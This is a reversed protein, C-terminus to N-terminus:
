DDHDEFLWLQNPDWKSNLIESEYFNSITIGLLRVGKENFEVNDLLSFSTTTIRGLTDFNESISKSRTIQSFDNFKVKLTLTKGALKKKSIRGLVIEAILVLEQKMDELDFLDKQFTDEAGVSKVKRTPQVPRNDIGRVVQFLFLGLKGFHIQLVSEPLDKLEKGTFIGLNKMKSATVKGVGFFKEIPLDSLFSEVKSPGIFTLGNPKNIDSAIKAVFKNISVGASATLNLETQIASKIEKAIEIASGINSKDSTVDLFAEDLSLPEILDTYRQFIARIENSVSKYADFRPKVFEIRPCLALARSSPMASRVGFARAEYSAAAVVGRGSPSGGVAIPKGRLRPNDRQEVSAFFADM